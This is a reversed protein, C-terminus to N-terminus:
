IVHYYLKLIRYIETYQLSELTPFFTADWLVHSISFNDGQVLVLAVPTVTVLVSANGNQADDVFRFALTRNTRRWSSDSRTWGLDWHPKRAFCDVTFM